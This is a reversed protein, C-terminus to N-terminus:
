DYVSSWWDECRPARHEEAKKFRLHAELGYTELFHSIDELPKRAADLVFKLDRFPTEPTVLDYVFLLPTACHLRAATTERVARVCEKLPKQALKDFAGGVWWEFESQPTEDSRSDIQHKANERLLAHVAAQPSASCEDDDGEQGAARGGWLLLYRGARVKVPTCPSSGRGGRCVLIKGYKLAVLREFGRVAACAQLASGTLPQKAACMQNGDFSLLPLELEGPCELLSGPRLLVDHQDLYIHDGKVAGSLRGPEFGQWIHHLFPTRVGRTNVM